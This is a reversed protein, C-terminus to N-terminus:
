SGGIPWHPEATAPRHNEFWTLAALVARDAFRQGAVQLGIPRGDSTFGCNITGAPQGSMNYPATFGIHAMGLDQDGFPMPWEAPFAAVPAVPSIILDLGDTAAITRSQLEIIANYCAMLELGDVGAGGAVWRQIFPLTREAREAPLARQDHLSRVRWFLDLRRLLEPTFFGALDVLEAGGAAFIAAAADTAAAVEADVDMGAGAARQVGVRLGAVSPAPTPETVTPLATWDRRDPGALVGLLLGLDDASRGMPGAARGLYPADLPILGGTPKLTALGLWTGPLRISGGIDTGVHLPGFGAAAAAGAGSSSGGTTWDPNWPSRTIGHLSSVGSSLMGWDPMVTSGLIIAGTAALRAAVPSDREPLVPAVAANGAPMPVGARALNEKITVPVGDLPGAPEGRAWRKTSQEAAAASASADRVWFANLVPERREIEAQVADHAQTPTLAGTAYRRLLEAASLRAPNTM